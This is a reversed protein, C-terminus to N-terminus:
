SAAALIAELVKRAARTDPKVGFWIDFALAGQHILMGLGDVTKLGRARAAALLPTELPRYVIDVICAHSPAAAIPWDPSPSGSLGLSTANVILDAQAFAASLDNWEWSMAAPTVACVEAARSATRNAVLVRSVGADALGGVIARAAGGAGLVLATKTTARWGPADEDLSAIFGPADTNFASVGAADFRLTNAAGLREVIPDRHTALAAAREKHPVTVNAGFLGSRPLADVGEGRMTLAVYVADLGAAAIWSNHMAPSLSHTVPDGVVAFVKTKGSIM